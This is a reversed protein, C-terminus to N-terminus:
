APASRSPRHGLPLPAPYCGSAPFLHDAYNLGVAVHRLRAEGPGPSGVDVAEYRLVDPGGTEHFRVAHEM